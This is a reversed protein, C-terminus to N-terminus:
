KQAKRPDAMRLALALAHLNEPAFANMGRV